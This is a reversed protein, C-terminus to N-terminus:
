REKELDIQQDALDVRSKDVKSQLEELAERQQQSSKKVDILRKQSSELTARNQVRDEALRQVQDSCTRLQLAVDTGNIGVLCSNNSTSCVVIYIYRIM